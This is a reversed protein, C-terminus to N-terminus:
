QTRKRAVFEVLRGPTELNEPDFDDDDLEIGFRECVFMMLELIGLSDIAGSKLLSTESAVGALNPFRQVLYHSIIEAVDADLTKAPM